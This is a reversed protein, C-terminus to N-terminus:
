INKLIKIHLYLNITYLNDQKLQVSLKLQDRIDYFNFCEKEFNVGCFNLLKKIENEPNSVINEYKIECIDEGLKSKWLNM